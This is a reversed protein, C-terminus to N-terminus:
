VAIAVQLTAGKLHVESSSQFDFQELLIVELNVTSKLVGQM